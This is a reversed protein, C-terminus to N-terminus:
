FGSPLHIAFENPMTKFETQKKPLIELQFISTNIGFYGWLKKAFPCIATSNKLFETQLESWFEVANFVNM